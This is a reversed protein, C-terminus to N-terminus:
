LFRLRRRSGTVGVTGKQGKDVEKIAGGHLGLVQGVSHSLDVELDALSQPDLLAPEYQVEEVLDTANELKYRVVLVGNPKDQRLALHPIRRPRHYPPERGLGAWQM